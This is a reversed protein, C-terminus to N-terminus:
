DFPNKMESSAPPGAPTDNTNSKAKNTKKSKSKSKSRTPKSGLAELTYDFVKAERNPIVEIELEAYGEAVLILAIPDEGRPFDVGADENTYGYRGRDVADLIAADINTHVTLNSRLVGAPAAPPEAADAPAPAADAPAADAPAAALDASDEAAPTDTSDEAQGTFVAALALGGALVLGGLGLWLIRKDGGEAPVQTTGPRTLTSHSPRTLEGSGSAAAGKFSMSASMDPRMTQENAVYVAGAGTGVAEIAHIMEAMTQFRLNPDKLLAKLVLAEAEPPIGADPAWRSPPEPADYLHKALIEGFNKGRFPVRGCLLEYIIIGVAYIDIRTDDAKAQAQEPSMYKATGFIMGTKTLGKGGGASEQVKAIGFDLVKIFDQDRGRTIRFCNDPKMDRHIIGAAHAAELAHCIQVAIHRVRAWAVRKERKLLMRLDEGELHEMVFFVSGNPTEGFDSIEIVNQQSIMSTARAERLFREVLDPREMFKPALVKLAFKKGIKVHEGLYVSGMGGAGLKQLVRYRDSLVMGSLDLEAPAAPNNSGPANM